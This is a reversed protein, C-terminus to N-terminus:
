EETSEESSEEGGEEGEETEEGILETPTEETPTTAAKVVRPKTVAAIVANEKSEVELNGLDITDLTVYDGIDLSSVDVEINERLDKPYCRVKVRRLVHNLIGGNRVGEPNGVLKIPLRLTLKHGESLGLLDFHTIDDTIPDLKVDKLICQRPEQGDIELHVLRTLSTFVVPKLDNPDVSIPISEKGAIYYVGPIKGESRLARATKRGSERSQSKLQIVNSM